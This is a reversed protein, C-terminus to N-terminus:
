NLGSPRGHVGGLPDDDGHYRRSGQGAPLTCPRARSTERKLLGREVCGDGGVSGGSSGGGAIETWCLVGELRYKSRGNRRSCGNYM